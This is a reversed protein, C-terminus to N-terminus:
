PRYAATRRHLSDLDKLGVFKGRPDALVETPSGSTDYFMQFTVIVVRASKGHIQFAWIKDSYLDLLTLYVKSLWSYLDILPSLMCLIAVSTWPTLFVEKEDEEIKQSHADARRYVAESIM